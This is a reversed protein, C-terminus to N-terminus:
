HLCKSVSTLCQCTGSQHTFGYQINTKLFLSIYIPLYLTKFPSGTFRKTLALHVAAHFGGQLMQLHEVTPSFTLKALSWAPKRGVHLLFCPCIFTRIFGRGDWPCAIFIALFHHGMCRPLLPTVACHSAKRPVTLDLKTSQDHEITPRHSCSIHSM